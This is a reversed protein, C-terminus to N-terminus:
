HAVERETQKWWESACETFKELGKNQIKFFSEIQINISDGLKKNFDVALTTHKNYFDLMEKTNNITLQRSAEFNKHILDVVKEPSATTSEHIADMLKINFDVTWKMQRTYSNIISDLAEEALEVSKEFSNKLKDTFVGEIKQGNLNEKISDAIKKNYDLAADIHKTNSDVMTRITEKSEQATGKIADKIRETKGDLSIEM